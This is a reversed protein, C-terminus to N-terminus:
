CAATRRIPRSLSLLSVSLGSVVSGKRRVRVCQVTPLRGAVKWVVRTTATKTTLAHSTQSEFAVILVKEGPARLHTADDRVKRACLADCGRLMALMGRADGRAQARLLDTVASREAGETSLWRALEISIGVFAIAALAILLPRRV